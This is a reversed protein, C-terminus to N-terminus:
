ICINQNYNRFKKLCNDRWIGVIYKLFPYNQFLALVEAIKIINKSAKFYTITQANFYYVFVLGQKLGLLNIYLRLLVIQLFM